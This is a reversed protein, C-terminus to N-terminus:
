GGVRRRLLRRRAAYSRRSGFLKKGLFRVSLADKSPCSEACQFCDICHGTQVDKKERELYVEEINMPCSRRCTACGICASPEKVLRLMTIPKILNMMALLPCFYCFSREKFFSGVLTIGTFVLLLVTLTTTVRNTYNIALYRTEGAFLPLLSKGPCISCFPLYFNDSLIGATVLPPVAILFVLLIYKIPSIAKHVQPSFRRERVGLAKRLGTLWDLLLGFPCIWGCWIKGLLAILGTVLAAYLLARFFLPGGLSAYSMGFGIFGQLGMLYCQGGCGAVFPCAFCPIGPGLRIGFRGGYILIFFSVHQVLSRIRHVMLFSGIRDKLTPPEGSM